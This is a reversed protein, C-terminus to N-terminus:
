PAQPPRDEKGPGAGAAGSLRKPMPQEERARATWSHIDTEDMAGDPPLRGDCYGEDLDVLYQSRSLLTGRCTEEGTPPVRQEVRLRRGLEAMLWDPVIGRLAPYIFGFLVLHSLLVRWHDGFRDLLREWDLEGGREHILHAVDAGDYREREMIFSKSWIVEEPPCFRVEVGLVEGARAHRFWLEDVRALGNGSSHIIDILHDGEVAKALWHPAFIEVRCGAARLSRYVEEADEQRVFLDLDKTQRHIGTYHSLAYAGGVLFPAHDARLHELVRRYFTHDGRLAHDPTPKTSM